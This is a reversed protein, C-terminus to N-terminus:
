QDTWDYGLQLAFWTRGNNEYTISSKRDIWDKGILVGARFPNKGKNIEFVLGTSGSLATLQASKVQGSEDKDKATVSGIGSSLVWTTSVGLFNRDMRWGLYPGITSSAAIEGSHPYFKFPAVLVGYVWGSRFSGSAVVEDVTVKTQQGDIPNCGFITGDNAPLVQLNIGDQSAVYLKDKGLGFGEDALRKKLAGFPKICDHEYNGPDSVAAAATDSKAPQAPQVAKGADVKPVCKKGDESLKHTGPNPCIPAVVDDAFASALFVGQVAVALACKIFAKQM